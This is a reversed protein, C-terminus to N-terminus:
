GLKQAFGSVADSDPADRSARGLDTTHSPSWFVRKIETREQWERRLAAHRAEYDSRNTYNRNLRAEVVAERVSRLALTGIM